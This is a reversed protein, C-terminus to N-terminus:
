NAHPYTSASPPRGARARRCRVRRIAERNLRGLRMLKGLRRPPRWPDDFRDGSGSHRGINNPSWRNAASSACLQWVWCTSRWRTECACRSSCETAIRNALRLLSRATSHRCRHQHPPLPADSKVERPFSLRTAVGSTACCRITLTAVRNGGGSVGGCNVGHSVGEVTDM